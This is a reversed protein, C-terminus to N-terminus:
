RMRNCGELFLALTAICYCDQVAVPVLVFVKNVVSWVLRAALLKIGTYGIQGIVAVAVFHPKRIRYCHERYIRAFNPRAPM